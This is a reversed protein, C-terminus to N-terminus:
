FVEDDTGEVAAAVAEPRYIMRIAGRWSERGPDRDLGETDEIYIQGRPWDPRGAFPGLMNHGTRCAMGRILPSGDSTEIDLVWFRLRSIWTLRFGFYRGEEPMRSRWEIIPRTSRRPATFALDGTVAM